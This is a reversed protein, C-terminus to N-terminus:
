PRHYARHKGRDLGRPARGLAALGQPLFRLDGRGPAARGRLLLRPCDGPADAREVLRFLQRPDLAPRGQRLRPQRRRPGRGGARLLGLGRVGFGGAGRRALRCRSGDPARLDLPYDAQQEEAYSSELRNRGAPPAYLKGPPRTTGLVPPALVKFLLSMTRDSSIIAVSM